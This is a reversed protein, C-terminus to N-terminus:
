QVSIGVSRVIDAWRATDSEILAGFQAPTARAATVGLPGLRTVFESSEVIAKL